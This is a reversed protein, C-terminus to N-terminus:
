DILGGERAERYRRLQTEIAEYTASRVREVDAESRPDGSTDIPPLVLYHQEVRRPLITGFAGAPLPLDYRESGFVRRGLWRERWVVTYMDDIGLGV